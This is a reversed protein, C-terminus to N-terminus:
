RTALEARLDVVATEQGTTLVAAPKEPTNNEGDGDRKSKSATAAIITARPHTFNVSACYAHAIAVAILLASAIRDTAAVIARRLLPVVLIIGVVITAALEFRIVVFRM